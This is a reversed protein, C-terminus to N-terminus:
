RAGCPSKGSSNKVSESRPFRFLMWDELYGHSSIETQCGSAILYFRAQQKTLGLAFTPLFQKVIFFNIAEAPRTVRPAAPNCAWYAGPSLRISVLLGQLM